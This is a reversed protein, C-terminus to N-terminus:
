KLQSIRSPHRCKRLANSEIQRVRERTIGVSKGIEDLTLPYNDPLNKGAWEALARLKENSDAGKMKPIVIREGAQRQTWM